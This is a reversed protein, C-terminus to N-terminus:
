FCVPCNSFDCSGTTKTNKTDKTSGAKNGKVLSGLKIFGFCKMWTAIIRKKVEQLLEVSLCDSVFFLVEEGSHAKNGKIFTSEM